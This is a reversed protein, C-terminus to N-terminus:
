MEFYNSYKSKLMSLIETELALHKKMVQDAQNSTKEQIAQFIESHENLITQWPFDTRLKLRRIRNLHTNMQQIVAWVRQKACGEFILYHFEDDTLLLREDDKEAIWHRQQNLNAELKLLYEKPFAECALRVTARELKERIFRADEMYDLNILSIYTGKQPYVDLLKEQTLRVFAERIPTRSVQLQDSIEKESVLTGPELKLSAINDRLIEYIRERMSQGYTKNNM